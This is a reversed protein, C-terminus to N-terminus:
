DYCDPSNKDRWEKEKEIRAKVSDKIEPSLSNIYNEEKKLIKQKKYILLILELNVKL